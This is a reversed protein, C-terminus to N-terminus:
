ASVDTADRGDSWMTHTHLDGQIDAISERDAESLSEWRGDM